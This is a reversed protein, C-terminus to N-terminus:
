VHRMSEVPKLRGAKWAPYLTAAVALLIAVACYAMMSPWDWAAYIHTSVAVGAVDMSDGMMESYDIGHNVFYHTMWTGLGLGIAAGIVGILFGEMVILGRLRAPPTGLALMVGFEKMREMVSMLLTNLIGLAIIFGIISLSTNNTRRDTVTFQYIEEVAVKWGLVELGRAEADPLAAQVAALAEDDDLPDQLHLSVQTVAGDDELFKQAASIEVIAFAGDLAAAGTKFLGRVRFLKSSVDERGQGMLVVKAGLAVDLTRALEVGLIIGRHDGPELWAGEVIRDEWSSVQAELDPQVATVAVGASNSTSTILGGLFSRQVVTGEPWAEAMAAAVADADTVRYELPDNDDQWGAGQIVVHGAIESIGTRIMELYMGHNINNAFFMLVVGFVIAVLTIATRIKHRLLNRLALRFVM